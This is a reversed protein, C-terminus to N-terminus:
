VSEYIKKMMVAEETQKGASESVIYPELGLEKLAIALPEFEPGYITDEFTLHRKEGGKTYEIKSFHIHFKRGREEGLEKIMYTVLKEFDEEKKLSGMERANIHGFDITQMLMEDLKCMEVIEELM